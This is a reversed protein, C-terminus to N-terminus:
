DRDFVCKHNVLAQDSDTEIQALRRVEQMATEWADTGFNLSNVLKRAEILAKPEKYKAPKKMIELGKTTQKDTHNNYPKTLLAALKIKL